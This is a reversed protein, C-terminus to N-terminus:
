SVTVPEKKAQEIKELIEWLGVSTGPNGQKDITGFTLGSRLGRGSRCTISTTPATQIYFENKGQGIQRMRVYWIESFLRTIKGPLKKGPVAIQVLTTDEDTYETQHAIVFVRIPLARIAMIVNEIETLIMGWHQIQPNKDIGGSNSMIKRQSAVGVSTLSDTVLSEYPYTKKQCEAAITHIRKKFRDFATAKTPDRDIYQTVNVALRQDRLNDHLGFAVELNDDLDLYECRDGLTLALATKARGAPGYILVKPPHSQLEAVKM